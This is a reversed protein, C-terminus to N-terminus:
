RGRVEVLVAVGVCLLVVAEGVRVGRGVLILVGMCLVLAGSALGGKHAGPLGVRRGGAVPAPRRRRVQQAAGLQLAVDAGLALRQRRVMAAAVGPRGERVGPRVGFGGKLVSTRM